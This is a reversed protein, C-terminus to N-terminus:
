WGRLYDRPVIERVPARPAPAAPKPRRPAAAPPEEVTVAITGISLETRAESIATTPAARAPRRRAPTAIPERSDDRQHDAPPQEMWQRVEVLARHVREAATTPAAAVQPPAASPGPALGRSEDAPLPRTAEAAQSAPSGQPVLAAAPPRETTEGPEAPAARRPTAAAPERETVVDAAEAVETITTPVHAAAEDRVTTDDRAAIEPPAVAPPPAPTAEQPAAAAVPTAPARPPAAASERPRPPSAVRVEDVELGAAWSPGRRPPAGAAALQRLRDFYPM